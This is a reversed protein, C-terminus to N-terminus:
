GIIRVKKGAPNKEILEQITLFKSGAKKIKEKASESAQYAAIEAKKTLNGVSLLKGPILATEGGKLYKEVKHLNVARRIRTPRSLDKAIRKWVAANKENSIRKLDAILKKLIPNTPGTRKVM